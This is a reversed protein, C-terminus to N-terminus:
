KEDGSRNEPQQGETLWSRILEHQYDRSLQFLLEYLKEGYASLEPPLSRRVSALKEEERRVDRVSLGDSWKCKSILKSIEMRKAFLKVLQEDLRDIEERCDRLDM